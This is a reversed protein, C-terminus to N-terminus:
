ATVDRNQSGNHFLEDIEDRQQQEEDDVLEVRAGHFDGAVAEFEAADVAGRGHQDDARQHDVARQEQALALQFLALPQRQDGAQHETAQGQGRVALGKELPLSRDHVPQEGQTKGAAVEDAIPHQDLADHAM